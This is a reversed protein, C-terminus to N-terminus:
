AWPSLRVKVRARGWESSRCSPRFITRKQRFIKDLFSGFKQSVFFHTSLKNFMQNFIQNFFPESVWRSKLTIMEVMKWPCTPASPLRGYPWLSGYPTNGSCDTIKNKKSIGKAHKPVHNKALRKKGRFVFLPFRCTAINMLKTWIHRIRWTCICYILTYYIISSCQYRIHQKEWCCAVSKCVGADSAFSLPQSLADQLLQFHLRSMQTTVGWHHCKTVEVPLCNRCSGGASYCGFQSFEFIYLDEKQNIQSTSKLFQRLLSAFTDKLYNNKQHSSDIHNGQLKKKKKKTPPVQFLQYGVCGCADLTCSSARWWARLPDIEDDPWTTKQFTVHLSIVRNFQVTEQTIDLKKWWVMQYAQCM